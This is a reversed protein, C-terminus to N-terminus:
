GRGTVTKNGLTNVTITIKHGRCCIGAPQEGSDGSVTFNQKQLRSENTKNNFHEYFKDYNGFIIIELWPIDSDKWDFGGQLSTSTENIIFPIYSKSVSLEIMKNQIERPLQFFHCDSFERHLTNEPLDDSVTICTMNMINYSKDYSFCYYRESTSGSFKWKKDLNSMIRCLSISEKYNKTHIAIARM